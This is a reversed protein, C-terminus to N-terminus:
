TLDIYQLNYHLNGDKDVDIVIYTLKGGAQRPRSISGPNIVHIDGNESIEPVHTHGYMVLNAGAEEAAYLLRTNDFGVGHEHGHVMLATRNGIKEVIRPSLDSDYDCNGRVFFAPCDALKRIYAAGGLVDGLHILMDPKVREIAIKINGHVGHTDSVVLVRM